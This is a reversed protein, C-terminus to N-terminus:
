DDDGRTTHTTVLPVFFVYLQLYGTYFGTFHEGAILTHGNPAHGWQGRRYIREQKCSSRFYM